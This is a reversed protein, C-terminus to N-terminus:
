AVWPPASLVGTSDALLQTMGREGKAYSPLLWPLLDLSCGAAFILPHNNPRLMSILYVQLVEYHCKRPSPAQLLMMSFAADCTVIFLLLARKRNRKKDQPPLRSDSFSQLKCLSM